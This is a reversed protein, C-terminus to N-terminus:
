DRRRSRRLIEQGLNDHHLWDAVSAANYLIRGNDERYAPGLGRDRWAKPARASVRLFKALERPGCEGPVAELIKGGSRTPAKRNTM